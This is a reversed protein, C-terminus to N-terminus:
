PIVLLMFGNTVMGDDRKFYIFIPDFSDSSVSGLRMAAVLFNLAIKLYFSDFNIIL